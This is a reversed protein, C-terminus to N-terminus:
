VNKQTFLSFHFTFLVPMLMVFPSSADITKGLSHPSNPVVGPLKRVHVKSHNIRSRRRFTATRKLIKVALAAIHRLISAVAFM